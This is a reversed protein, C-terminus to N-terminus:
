ESLAKRVAPDVNFGKARLADMMNRAAQKNGSQLYVLIKAYMLNNNDPNHELGKDLLSIAESSESIRALAKASNIYPAPDSPNKDILGSNNDLTEAIQYYFTYSKEDPSQSLGALIRFEPLALDYRKSLLLSIGKVFRAESRSSDARLVTDADYIAADFERIALLRKARELKLGYDYRDDRILRNLSDIAAWKRAEDKVNQDETKYIENNGELKIAKGIMQGARSYEHENRLCVSRLYYLTADPGYLDLLHDIAYGAEEFYRELIIDRILSVSFDPGPKEGTLYSMEALRIMYDTSAPDNKVELVKEM